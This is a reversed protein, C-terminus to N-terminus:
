IEDRIARNLAMILGVAGDIREAGIVTPITHVMRVKAKSHPSGPPLTQFSVVMMLDNFDFQKKSNALGKFHCM